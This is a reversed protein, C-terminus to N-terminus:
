RSYRKLFVAEYTDGSSSKLTFSYSYKEALLTAIQLPLVDKRAKVSIKQAGSKLLEVLKVLPNDSCGAPTTMDIEATSEELKSM